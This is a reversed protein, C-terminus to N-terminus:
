YHGGLAERITEVSANCCVDRYGALEDASRKGVVIARIVKMGIVSPADDMVHHRQISMQMLANQM